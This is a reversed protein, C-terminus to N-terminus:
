AHLLHEVSVQGSLSLVLNAACRAWPLALLHPIWSGVHELGVRAVFDSHGERLRKDVGPGGHEHERLQLRYKPVKQM